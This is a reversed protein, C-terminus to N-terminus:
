VEEECRHVYPGETETEQNKQSNLSSSLEWTIMLM